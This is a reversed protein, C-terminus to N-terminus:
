EFADDRGADLHKMSDAEWKFAAAPTQELGSPPQELLFCVDHPALSALPSVSTPDWLTTCAPVM